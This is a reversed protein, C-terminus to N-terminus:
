LGVDRIFRTNTINGNRIKGRVIIVHNSFKRWNNLASRSKIFDLAISVSGSTSVRHNYEELSCSQSGTKFEQVPVRIYGQENEEFYTGCWNLTSTEAYGESSFSILSFLLAFLCTKLM